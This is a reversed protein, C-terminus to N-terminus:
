RGKWPPTPTFPRYRPHCPRTQRSRRYRAGMPPLDASIDRESIIGAIKDKDHVIVCSIKKESMMRGVTVLNTGPPVTAVKKSMVYSVKM